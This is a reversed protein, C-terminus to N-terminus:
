RGYIPPLTGNGGIDAMAVYIYPNSTGGNIDSDDERIKFGDSVFDIDRGSSAEVANSNPLLYKTVPNDPGRANDFVIWPNTTATCKILVYAPTFGLSVYPGDTTNNPIYSGVKCVGPVSRFCYAIYTYSSNNVDGDTGLTFVVSGPLTNNLYATDDQLATTDNLRLYKGAGGTTSFVRWLFSSAGSGERGRFFILEPEGGLSHAVTAGNTSNGQYGVVSFHGADAAAVTSAISNTPTTSSANITTTTAAEGVLWQWLVYSENATNVEADSGVQVGRQFFRQVTNTNTAELDTANSHLVEGVGRVRDVLIHPDTADRNKIWAWATNKSSTDDLNDQNLNSFGTPPTHAFSRQGFNFIFDESGVSGIRSIAPFWEDYASLDIGSDNTGAAPNGSNFFTGDYGAWFKGADIDVAFMLFKGATAFNTGLGGYSVDFASNHIFGAINSDYSNVGVFANTNSSSDAVLALNHNKTAIGIHSGSNTSVSDLEVEWYMKGSYPLTGRIGDGAATGMSVKLNGESLTTSTSSDQDYPNMVAFNLSPADTFQNTADLVGGETFDRNNGSDDEGYDSTNSFDLYFGCNGFGDTLAGIATTITSSAKPVWRNTSTDLQGFVSADLQEGDIMYYEAYYMNAHDSAAHFGPHCGIIQETSAKNIYAQATMNNAPYTLASSGSGDTFDTQRVGNVWIKVRDAETSGDTYDLGFVVHVWQSPDALFAGTTQVFAVQSGSGRTIYQLQGSSNSYIRESSDSGGNGVYIWNERAELPKLWCSVTKKQVNTPSTSVSNAIRLEDEDAANFAVSQSITGVDTFPVFDGVRQGAGNGEYLTADFYDIGQYEPATLNATNLNKFNVDNPTYNFEATVDIAGSNTGDEIMFGVRGSFTKSITGQASGNILFEVTNNDMDLEVEVTNTASVSSGYSSSSGDVYKEGDMRLGVSDSTATFGNTFANSGEIDYVGIVPYIGGITNVTFKAAYKGSGAPITISSIAAGRNGSSIAARLNGETLTPAVLSGSTTPFPHQIPNWIAYTNSPTNESQNAAAITSTSFNNGKTSADNVINSSDSYDLCFSNNGAASALAIIDTNSKPIRQSGNTGFTFTDLFDTIALDGNAISKNDLFVTQALYGQMHNNPTTSLDQGIRATQGSVNTNLHNNQGIATGSYTGVRVGNVYLSIRDNAAANASDFDVLVHYWSGIDRYSESTNIAGENGANDRCFIQFTSSTSTHKLSFGNSSSGSAFLTIRDAVADIERLPQYWTALIWRDQNSESGWTDTAADGSTGSGDLWISNGILTTDFPAAGSTAAAAGFLLNNSFVM